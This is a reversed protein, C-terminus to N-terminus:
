VAPREIDNACSLDPQILVRYTRKCRAALALLEQKRFVHMTEYGFSVMPTVANLAIEYAKM